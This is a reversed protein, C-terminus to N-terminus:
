SGDWKGTIRLGRILNLVWSFPWYSVVGGIIGLITLVLPYIAVSAIGAPIGIIKSSDLDFYVDVGVLSFLFSIASPWLM